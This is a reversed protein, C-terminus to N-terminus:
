VLSDHKGDRRMRTKYKIRGHTSKSLMDASLRLHPIMALHTQLELPKMEITSFCVGAELGGSRDRALRRWKGIAPDSQDIYAPSWSCAWVISAPSYNGEQTRPQGEYCFRAAQGNGSNWMELILLQPMHRAANAAASLLPPIEDCTSSEFCAATLCLKTLNEWRMVQAGLDRCRDEYFEHLFGAADAAFGCTLVSLNHSALALSRGARHHSTPRPGADHMRPDADSFLSLRQIRRPFPTPWRMDITEVFNEDHRVQGPPKLRLWQEHNLSVLSPLGERLLRWVVNRGISRYSALDLNLDTIIRAQPLRWHAEFPYQDAQYSWQLYRSGFLRTACAYDKSPPIPGHGNSRDSEPEGIEEYQDTLSNLRMALPRYHHKTDRQATEEDEVKDCLDCDYKELIIYFDLRNIYGLRRTNRGGLMQSLTALDDPTLLLKKFVKPEWYANWEKNVQAYAAYLGRGSTLLQAFVLDRLELPLRDWPSAKQPTISKRPM